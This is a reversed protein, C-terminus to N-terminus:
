KSATVSTSIHTGHVKNYEKLVNQIFALWVENPQWTKLMEAKMAREDEGQVTIRYLYTFVSGRWNLKCHTLVLGGDNHAESVEHAYDSFNEYTPNDWVVQINHYNMGLNRVSHREEDRDGPILDIVHTVGLANLRSLHIDDPLGASVMNPSNIQFNTLDALVSLPSLSGSSQAM